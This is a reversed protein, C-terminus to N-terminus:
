VGWGTENEASSKTETGSVLCFCSRGKALILFSLGPKGELGLHGFVSLFILFNELCHFDLLLTYHNRLLPFDILYARNNGQKVAKLSLRPQSVHLSYELFGLVWLLACSSLSRCSSVGLSRLIFTLLATILTQM